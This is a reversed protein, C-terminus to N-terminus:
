KSLHREWDALRRMFEEEHVCRRYKYASSDVDLGIFDGDSGDLATYPADTELKYKEAFWESPVLLWRDRDEYYKGDELCPLSADGSSADPSADSLGQSSNEAINLAMALAGHLSIEGKEYLSVLGEVIIYDQIDKM